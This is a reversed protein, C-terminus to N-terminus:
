IRWRLYLFDWTYLLITLDGNSKMNGDRPMDRSDCRSIGLLKARYAVAPLNQRIKRREAKYDIPMDHQSQQSVGCCDGWGNRSNSALVRWNILHRTMAFDAPDSSGTELPFTCDKVKVLFFTADEEAKKSWRCWFKRRRGSQNYTYVKVFNLM